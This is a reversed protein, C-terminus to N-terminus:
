AAEKVYRSIKELLSIRQGSLAMSIAARSVKFRKQLRSPKIGKRIMTIRVHLPNIKSM